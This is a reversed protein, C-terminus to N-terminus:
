NISFWTCKHAIILYQFIIFHGVKRKVAWEWTKRQVQSSVCGAATHGHAGTPNALAWRGSNMHLTILLWSQAKSEWWLDAGSEKLIIWLLHFNTLFSQSPLSYILFSPPLAPPSHMLEACHYEITSTLKLSSLSVWIDPLPSNGSVDTLINRSSIPMQNPPSFLFSTNDNLTPPSWGVLWLCLDFLHEYSIRVKISKRMKGEKGQCQSM